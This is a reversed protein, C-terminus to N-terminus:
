RVVRLAENALKRVDVSGRQRFRQIWVDFESRKVCVKGDVKFHPLGRRKIYKRLTSVALSSYESLGPLDFYRDEVTVHLTVQKGNEMLVLKKVTDEPLIM